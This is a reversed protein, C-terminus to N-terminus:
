KKIEAFAQEMKTQAAKAADAPSMNKVVVDQLMEATIRKQGIASLQTLLTPNATAPAWGPVSAEIAAPFNNFYPRDAWFKAKTLEKYVPYWRGGVKEYVAEIRDPQMIYKITEKSADVQKSASFVSWAWTGVSSPNGVKGKPVPAQDTQKLLEKDNQDLFAFISAPNWVFAARRSQYAQNNSSDDWSPSDPPILQDKWWRQVRTLASITGDGNIAPKGDKDVLSGGDARLLTEINGGADPTRGLTFGIGFLKPPDNLKRAVEEVEDWTKPAERKGTAKEVLDLRTYMVSLDAQMPISYTKGEVQVLPLLQPFMGGGLGKVANYLESLDVLRNQSAFYIANTGGMMVIDPIAGSEVAAAVKADYDSGPLPVYEADVKNAKGWEVMQQGLLADGDKTFSVIGWATLKGSFAKTAAGASSAPTAGAAAPSAAGAAPKTAAGAAGAVGPPAPTGVAAAPAPTSVASSAPAPKTAGGPAASAGGAPAATPAAPGATSCAALLGLGGLGLAGLVVHRRSFSRTRLTM